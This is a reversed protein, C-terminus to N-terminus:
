VKKFFSSLKAMGDTNVKKLKEVGQSLKVGKRKKTEGVTNAEKGRTKQPVVAPLVVAQANEREHYADLQSFDFSALLMKYTDSPIYQALTDCAARTRGLALLDEKGDEMLGDMALGRILTRSIGTIEPSSLHAVKDKLYKIAKTPSFRYVMIESTIEKFECVSRMAGMICPMSILQLIDARSPIHSPDPSAPSEQEKVAEFQASIEDFIDDAPRFINSSDHAEISQLIPLILFVPDIPTIILLKGDSEVEENTFWSRPEPHDVAQVEFINSAKSHSANLLFLSPLGTRPHPLRSFSLKSLESQDQNELSTSIAQFIDLPLIGIHAAM